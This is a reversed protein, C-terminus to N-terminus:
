DPRHRSLGSDHRHINTIVCFVVAKFKSNEHEVRGEPLGINYPDGTAARGQSGAHPLLAGM